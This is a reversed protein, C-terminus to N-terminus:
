FTNQWYSASMSLPSGAGDRLLVDPGVAGPGGGPEAPPAGSVWDGDPGLRADAPEGGRRLADIYAHDAALRVAV